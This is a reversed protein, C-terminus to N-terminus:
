YDVMTTVYRDGSEKLHRLIERKAVKWGVIGGRSKRPDGMLIPVVYDFGQQVLHEVLVENVATEETPGEVHIFLDSM